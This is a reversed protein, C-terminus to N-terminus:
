EESDTYMYYDNHMIIVLENKDNVINDENTEYRYWEQMEEDINPEFHATDGEILLELEKQLEEERDTM